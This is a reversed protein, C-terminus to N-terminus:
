NKQEKTLGMYYRYRYVRVIYHHEAYWWVQFMFPPQSDHQSNKFSQKCHLYFYFVFLSKVHANVYKKCRVIGLHVQHWSIVSAPSISAINEQTKHPNYHIEDVFEDFM